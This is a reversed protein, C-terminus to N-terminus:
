SASPYLTFKAGHKSVLDELYSRDIRGDSELRVRLEICEEFAPTTVVKGCLPCANEIRQDYVPGGEKHLDTRKWQHAHIGKMIPVSIKGMDLLRNRIFTCECPTARLPGIAM